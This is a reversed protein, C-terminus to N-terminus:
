RCTEEKSEYGKSRMQMGPEEEESDVHITPVSTHYLVASLRFARLDIKGPIVPAFFRFRVSILERSVM